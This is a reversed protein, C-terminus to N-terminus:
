GKDEPRAVKASAARFPWVDVSLWIALVVACALICVIRNHGLANIVLAEPGLLLALRFLAIFAVSGQKVPKQNQTKSSSEM